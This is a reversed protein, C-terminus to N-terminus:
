RVERKWASPFREDKTMRRYFKFEGTKLGYILGEFLWRKYVLDNMLKPNLLMTM